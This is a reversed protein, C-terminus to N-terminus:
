LDSYDVDDLIEVIENGNSKAVIKYAEEHSQVENFLITYDEDTVEEDVKIHCLLGSGDTEIADKLKRIYKYFKTFDSDIFYQDSHLSVLWVNKFKRLVKDRFLVTFRQPLFVHDGITMGDKGAFKLDNKSHLLYM